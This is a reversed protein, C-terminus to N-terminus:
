AAEQEFYGRGNCCSCKVKIQKGTGYETRMSTGTGNCMGCQVKVTTMRPTGGFGNNGAELAVLRLRSVELMKSLAM